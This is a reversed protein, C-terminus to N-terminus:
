KIEKINFTIKNATDFLPVLKNSKLLYVTAIENATMDHDQQGLIIPDGKKLNVQFPVWDSNPLFPLTGM